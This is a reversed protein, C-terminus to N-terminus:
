SGPDYFGLGILERSIKIDLVDVLRDIQNKFITRVSVSGIYPTLVSIFELKTMLNQYDEPNECAMAAAEALHNLFLDQNPQGEMASTLYATLSELVTSVVESAKRLPSIADTRFVGIKLSQSVDEVGVVNQSAFFALGSGISTAIIEEHNVLCSYGYYTPAIGSDLFALNGLSNKIAAADASVASASGTYIMPCLMDVYGKEVWTEWDQMYTAKAYNISSVVDASVVIEPRLNRLAKSFREVAKTINGQRWANWKALNASQLILARVDGTLSYEQKFKNEPYEGYGSDRIPSGSYNNDYYRIYDLQIGEFDYKEAMELFVGELFSLVEPNSPDLYYSGGYPNPHLTLGQYNELLWADKVAASKHESNGANFTHCWAHVGIGQKKCEGILAAIYDNGYEEGYSFASVQPHTELIESRYSVFGNWYTEVFLTNFGLDKVEQVFRKLNELNDEKIGAANPRHWLARIEMNQSYSTRFIVEETLFDTEKSLVSVQSIEDATPTEKAAIAEIQAVKATESAILAEIAADDIQYKGAKAADHNEIALALNRKALFMPSDIDDRTILIRKTTWEISVIDGVKVSQLAVKKTGHGSIVYGGAEMSVNTACETVFHDKNVAIEYGWQNAPSRGTENYSYYVLYNEQRVIDKGNLIDDMVVDSAAVLAGQSFMITSMLVFMPLMKM